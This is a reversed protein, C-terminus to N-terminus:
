RVYTLRLMLSTNPLWDYMWVSICYCMAMTSIPGQSAIFTWDFCTQDRLNYSPFWGSSWRISLKRVCGCVPVSLINEISRIQNYLCALMSCMLWRYWQNVAIIVSITILQGIDIRSQSSKRKRQRNSRKPLEWFMKISKGCNLIRRKSQKRLVPKIRSSSTVASPIMWTVKWFIIGSGDTSVFIM